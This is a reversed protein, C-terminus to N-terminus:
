LAHTLGTVLSPLIGAALTVAVCIGIAISTQVSVIYKSPADTESNVNEEHFSDAYLALVIRIYFAAAIVTAVLIVIGSLYFKEQFAVRFVDFKAIFGSTLPIGAQAFLLVTLSGALWPNTRALGKFQSLSDTQENVGSVVSIVAFTGAVIFAYIVV